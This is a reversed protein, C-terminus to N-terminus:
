HLQPASLCSGQIKVSFRNEPSLLKKHAVDQAAEMSMCLLFAKPFSPKRYSFLFHPPANQKSQYSQAHLAKKHRKNYLRKEGHILPSKKRAVFKYSYIPNPLM